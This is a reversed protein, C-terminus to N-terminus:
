RWNKEEERVKGQAERLETELRRETERSRKLKHRLFQEREQLATLIPLTLVEAQRSLQCMLVSKNHILSLPDETGGTVKGCEEIQEAKFIDPINTLVDIASEEDGEMMEGRGVSLKVYRCAGGVTQFAIAEKIDGGTKGDRNFVSFILGVFDKDMNQWNAQTGLDVHSPPVTIRPHSHYWGVVRREGPLSDAYERAAVMDEVDIEVRDREKTVRRFIKIATVVM